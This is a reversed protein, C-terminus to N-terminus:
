VRKSWTSVLGHAGLLLLLAGPMWLLGTGDASGVAAIGLLLGASIVILTGGLRPVRDYLALGIMAMLPPATAGAIYRGSLGELGGAQKAMGVGLTALIGLVAGLATYLRARTV